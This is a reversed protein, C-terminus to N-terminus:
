WIPTLGTIPLATLTKSHKCRLVEGGFGAICRGQGQYLDDFELPQQRPLAHVNVHFAQLLVGLVCPTREVFGRSGRARGQPSRCQAQPPAQSWQDSAAGARASELAGEGWGSGRM